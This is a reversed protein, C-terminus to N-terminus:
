KTTASLNVVKEGQESHRHKDTREQRTERRTEGVLWRTLSFLTMQKKIKSAKGEEEGDRDHQRSQQQQQLRTNSKEKRGEM